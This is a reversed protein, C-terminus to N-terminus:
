FPLFPFSRGRPARRDIWGLVTRLLCERPRCARRTRATHVLAAASQSPDQPPIKWNQSLCFPPFDRWQDALASIRAVGVGSGEGCPPPLLASATTPPPPAPRFGLLRRPASCLGQSLWQSDDRRLCPGM